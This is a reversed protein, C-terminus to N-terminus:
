DYARKIRRLEKNTINSSGSNKIYEVVDTVSYLELTYDDRNIKYKAIEYIETLDNNDQSLIIPIEMFLAMMIMHVDGISSGGYRDNFVDTDPLLPHMKNAKRPNSVLLRNYFENYIELFLSSYYNKYYDAPIFEDYKVLKIFGSKVLDESFSFMSLENQYIYPHLYLEFEAASILKKLDESIIGSNNFKEIFCTDIIAKIM